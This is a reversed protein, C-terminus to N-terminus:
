RSPLLPDPSMSFNQGDPVEVGNNTHSCAPPVSGHVALAQGELLVTPTKPDRSECFWIHIDAFRDKANGSSGGRRRSQRKARRAWFLSIPLLFRRRSLSISAPM